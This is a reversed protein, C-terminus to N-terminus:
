HAKAHKAQAQAQKVEKIRRGTENKLETQMDKRYGLFFLVEIFVFLPALVIAGLLNDLLAPARGEHVGHGYFQAAWSAVFISWSITAAHPFNRALHFASAYFATWLPAFLTAITTDLIAYYIWYCVAIWSAINIHQYVSAPLSASVMADVELLHAQISLPLPSIIKHIGLESTLLLSLITMWILPVCVIHILVNVHNTHYAGYFALQDKLSFPSASLGM